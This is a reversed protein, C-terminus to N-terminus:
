SEIDLAVGEQIEVRWGCMTTPCAIPQGLSLYGRDDVDVSVDLRPIAYRKSCVPCVLSLHWDTERAYYRSGNYVFSIAPLDDDRKRNPALM